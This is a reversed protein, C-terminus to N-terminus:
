ADYMRPHLALDELRPESRRLRVDRRHGSRAGRAAGGDGGLPRDDSRDGRRSAPLRVGRGRRRFSVVPQHHGAELPVRRLRRGECGLVSAINDFVESDVNELFFPDFERLEDVSDFEHIVGEDYKRCVMDLESIHDIYIQEWLKDATRSSRVGGRPDRRLAELVCSRFLRARDHVLRRLRRHLRGRHPRQRRAEHVVGEHLGRPVSRRLVCSLRLARLPKETFYDDSSCVYTNGLLERVAMLSSNNNRRCYAPNVVIRVGYKEALYFFHEKKYGVVVTVDDVGADHLQEIQREILVEGRVRLVGKPKEYSIPAFRSSLGAALIVANDVKYPSLAQIGGGYGSIGGGGEVLDRYARNASGLSMEGALSPASPACTVM